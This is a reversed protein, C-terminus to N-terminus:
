QEDEGLFLTFEEEMCQLQCEGDMGYPCQDCNYNGFFEEITM